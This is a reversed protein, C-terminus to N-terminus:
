HAYRVGNSHGVFSSHLGIVDHGCVILDSSYERREVLVRAVAFGGPYSRPGHGQCGYESKKKEYKKNRIEFKGKPHSAM